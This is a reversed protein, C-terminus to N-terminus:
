VYKISSVAPLDNDSDEGDVLMLVRKASRCGGSRESGSSSAPLISPLSSTAPSSYFSNTKNSPTSKKNAQAASVM